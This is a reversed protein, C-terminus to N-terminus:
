YLRVLPAQRGHYPHGDIAEIYVHTARFEIPSVRGSITVYKGRRALGGLVAPNQNLIIKNGFGYRPNNKIFYGGFDRNYGIRALLGIPQYAGKIKSYVDPDPIYKQAFATGALGLMLLLFLLSISIKRM